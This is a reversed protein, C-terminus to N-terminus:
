RPSDVFGALAHHLREGLRDRAGADLLQGAAGDASEDAAQRNRTGPLGGTGDATHDARHDGGPTRGAGPTPDDGPARNEGSARNEGPTRDDRGPTRDDATRDKTTREGPASPPTVPAHKGSGESRGPAGPDDSPSIRQGATGTGTPTAESAPASTPSEAM